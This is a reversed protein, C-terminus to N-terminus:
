GPSPYIGSGRFLDAFFQRLMARAPERNQLETAGFRFVEYGNLKLDRDGRMNSAYKTTDARGESSYHQSGDVELVVRQGHPLILVFDMRFHLLAEPSRQRVTKPDWLLWVEPLLAPLNQVPSGHIAYYLEFLNRQPPSSDPLCKLLRQYLTRKAEGEDPIQRTDQWWAQLDKWRVGDPGFRRDYVLVDGPNGVIEIDNDIADLFRIDPKGALSAFIVNKPHRTRASQSVLAFVPYGGEVGTERLEVGVARVHPNMTDVVHQQLLEDLLVDGSTLEELFRAFRADSADFAGVAEFLDEADWDGPNRFVHRKIRAELTSDDAWGFPADNLVWFRDLLNQFRDVNQVLGGLDFARSLERRTRKPIEHSGGAAWLIDQIANRTASHRWLGSALIREAVTPLDGDPLAALSGEIRERKSGEEPPAPLGLRAFDGPLSQRTYSGPDGVVFSVLNRLEVLDM